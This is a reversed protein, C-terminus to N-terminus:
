IHQTTFKLLRYLTEKLKDRPIVMDIMGKELLFESKQFNEPLKQRITQEIVRPGAFGILAKPEAINIDGLMAYSATVGGTTPNTLVSIYPLSANHMEKLAASVKAMQMLSFVSEQMRAGGSASIIILPLSMKICLDIVRKIKEGVVSGMSGGMFSYEMVCVIAEIGNIKGKVCIIAEKEKSKKSNEILREKYPKLDVFNLPDVPLIEEFLEEYDNNDILLELRKRASIYFHYGCKPCVNNNKEILEGYLIQGCADCKTWLGKPVKVSRKEEPTAEPKQKKRFWM